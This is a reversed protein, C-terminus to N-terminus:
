FNNEVQIAATHTESSECLLQVGGGATSLKIITLFAENM